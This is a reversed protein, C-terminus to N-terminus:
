RWFMFPLVMAALVGLVGGVYAFWLPTGEVVALVVLTVYLPMLAVFLVYRWRLVLWAWLAM